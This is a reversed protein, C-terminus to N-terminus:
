RLRVQDGRCIRQGTIKVWIDDFFEILNNLEQKLAETCELAQEKKEQCKKDTGCDISYLNNGICELYKLINEKSQQGQM